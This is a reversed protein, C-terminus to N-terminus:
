APCPDDCPSQGSFADLMKLIDDLGILTYGGGSMRGADHEGMTGRLNYGGGMTTGGGGAVKSRKMEYGDGSQALVPCTLFLFGATCIWLTACARM